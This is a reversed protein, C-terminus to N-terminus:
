EPPQISMKEPARRKMDERVKATMDTFYLLCVSFCSFTYIKLGYNKTYALGSVM